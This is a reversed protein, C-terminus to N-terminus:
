EKLDISNCKYSVVIPEKGRPDVLSGSFSESYRIEGIVPVTGGFVMDGDHFGGPVKSILESPPIIQSLRGCQYEIEEGFIDRVKSIIILEDWHSQVDELRWCDKSIPKQCVQKSYNVSFSELSRDTHDSGVGVFISGEVNFLFFEVEGSSKKDFDDVVGEQTVLNTSVEYFMPIDSPPRVGLVKLEAVHSMVERRSRGTWGAIILRRLKLVVKEGSGVLNMVIDVM